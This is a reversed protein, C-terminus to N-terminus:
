PPNSVALGPPSEGEGVVAPFTRALRELPAVRVGSAEALGAARASALAAHIARRDLDGGFFVPRLAARGARERGRADNWLAAWADRDFGPWRTPLRPQDDGAPAATGSIRQLGPAVDAAMLAGEVLLTGSGCMPDLLAGGDAYVRPWGGRLLVGAALNEKLPAEGQARRWGRRHLPGGGLDVSLLARGKRLVLNLRLDPAELDVDPREGDRERFADVVA